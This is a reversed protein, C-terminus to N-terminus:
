KTVQYAETSGSPIRFFRSEQNVEIGTLSPYSSLKSDPNGFVNTSGTSIAPPTTNEVTIDGLLICRYFVSDEVSELDRFYISELSECSYFVGYRLKKISGLDNYGPNDDTGDSKRIYITKLQRCYGFCSDLLETTGFPLIASTLSSCAYFASEGIYTVFDPVSISELRNCVYFAYAGIKRIDSPIEFSSVGGVVSMLTYTTDGSQEIVPDCVLYASGLGTDKYKVPNYACDGTIETLSDNGNFVAQGIYTVTEPIYISQLNAGYFAHYELRTVKNLDVSRLGSSAFANEGVTTINDPFEVSTISSCFQFTGNSIATYLSNNPIHVNTLRRCAFFASDGIETISDTLNISNLLTCNYFAESGIKTLRDTVTINELSTCGYFASGSIVSINNGLDVNVLSSCNEFASGDIVISELGADLKITKLSSCKSFIGYPITKWNSPLIAEQLVSNNAFLNICDESKLGTFYQLENFSTVGSYTTITKGDEDTSTGAVYLKSADFSSVTVDEANEKTFAKKGAAIQDAFGSVM